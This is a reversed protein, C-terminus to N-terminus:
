NFKRWICKFNNRGMYIVKEMSKVPCSEMRKMLEEMATMDEVYDEDVVIAMLYSQSILERPLLRVNEVSVEGFQKGTDIGEFSACRYVCRYYTNEKEDWVLCLQNIEFDDFDKPPKTAAFCARGASQVQSILLKMENCHKPDFAYVTWNMSDYVCHFVYLLPNELLTGAAYPYSIADITFGPSSKGSGMSSTPSSDGMEVDGRTPEIEDLGTQREYLNLLSRNFSQPKGELQLDIYNNASDTVIFRDKRLIVQDLSNRVTEASMIDKQRLNKLRLNKTQTPRFFLEKSQLLRLNDKAIELTMMLDMLHVTVKQPTVTDVKARYWQERYQAWLKTEKLLTIAVPSREAEVNCEDLFDLYQRDKAGDLVRVTVSNGTAHYGVIAVADGIKVTAQKAQENEHWQVQVLKRSSFFILLNSYKIAFLSFPFETRVSHHCM